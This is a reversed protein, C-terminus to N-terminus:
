DEIVLSLHIVLHLQKKRNMQRKAIPTEKPNSVQSKPNGAQFVRHTRGVSLMARKGNM